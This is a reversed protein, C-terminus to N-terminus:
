GMSRESSLPTRPPAMGGPPLGSSDVTESEMDFYFNVRSIGQRERFAKGAAALDDSRLALRGSAPWHPLEDLTLGREAPDDLAEEYLRRLVRGRAEPTLGRGCVGEYAALGTDRARGVDDLLGTLLRLFVEEEDEPAVRGRDLLLAEGPAFIEDIHRMGPGRAAVVALGNAAAELLVMGFSEARAPHFLVHSERFLRLAERRGVTGRFDIGRTLELDEEPVAGLYTFRVAPYARALRQFVRLALRGNKAEYDNGAFLVALGPREWKQRCLEPLLPRQAPPVVRSKTFLPEAERELGLREVIARADELAMRTTFLVAQCSPHAFAALLNAARRRVSEWETGSLAAAAPERFRPHMIHRGQLLPYGLGDMDTVWARRGVVPWYASHVVQPGPGFEILEGLHPQEYPSGATLATGDGEFVFHHRAERAFLFVGEPPDLRLSGHIGPHLDIHPGLLVTQIRSPM